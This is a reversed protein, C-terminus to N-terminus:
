QGMVHVMSLMFWQTHTHTRSRTHLSMEKWSNYTYHHMNFAATSLKLCVAGCVHQKCNRPTKRKFAEYVQTNKYSASLQWFLVSNCFTKIPHQVILLHWSLELIHRFSLQLPVVGYSWIGDDSTKDIVDSFYVDRVHCPRTKTFHQAPNSIQAAM